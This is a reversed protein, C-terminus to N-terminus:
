RTRPFERNTEWEEIVAYLARAERAAQKRLRKFVALPKCDEMELWADLDLYECPGCLWEDHLDPFNREVFDEFQQNVTAGAFMLPPPDGYPTGKLSM